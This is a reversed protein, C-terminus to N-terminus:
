NLVLKVLSLSDYVYNQLYNRINLLFCRNNNRHIANWVNWVPHQDVNELDSTGKPRCAIRTSKYKLESM